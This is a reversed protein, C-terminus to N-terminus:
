VPTWKGPRKYNSYIEQENPREVKVSIITGLLYHRCSPRERLLGLNELIEKVANFTTKSDTTIIFRKPLELNKDVQMLVSTGYTVHDSSMESRIAGRFKRIIDRSFTEASVADPRRRM